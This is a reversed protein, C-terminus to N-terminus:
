LEMAPPRNRTKFRKRSDRLSFVRTLPQGNERSVGAPDQPHDFSLRIPQRGPLGARFGRTEVPELANEFPFAPYESSLETTALSFLDIWDTDPSPSSLTSCSQLIKADLEKASTRSKFAPVV